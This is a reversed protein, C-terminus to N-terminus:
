RFRALVKISLEELLELNHYSTDIVNVRSAPEVLHNVVDNLEISVVLRLNAGEEDISSCFAEM